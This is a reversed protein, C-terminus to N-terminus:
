RISSCALIHYGLHAIITTYQNMFCKLKKSQVEAFDLISAKIHYSEVGCEITHWKM